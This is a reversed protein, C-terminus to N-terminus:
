VSFLSPKTRVAVQIRQTPVHTRWPRM